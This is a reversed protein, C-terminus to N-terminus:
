KYIETVINSNDCWGRYMGESNFVLAHNGKGDVAIVGGEGRIQVLKNLVVQNCAEQLSLGKYEILCSIDYAVVGQIFLEGHGTCSVACTQNNAYTGAGIIPTDGVRGFKKNTMGGTSTAAAINGYCDFAVAGITGFKKETHDLQFSDTEKIEQWQKYRFEDFFYQEDEFELNNAAAFEEAGKGILLVHESLELIKQSLLIPNKVGQVGAVAASKMTKGDMLSADMEHQGKHNFVSGRGANFLPNNELELAAAIVADLATGKKELISKGAKLATELGKLYLTEKEETMASKTITGAGGHVCLKFEQM